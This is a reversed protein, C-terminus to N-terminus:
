TLPRPGGPHPRQRSLASPKTPTVRRMAAEHARRRKTSSRARPAMRVVAPDVIAYSPAGLTPRRPRRPSRGLAAHSASAVSSVSSHSRARAVCASCSACGSTTVPSPPAADPTPFRVSVVSASVTSSTASAASAASGPASGAEDPLSDWIEDYLSKLEAASVPEYQARVAQVDDKEPVPPPNDPIQESEVLSDEDLSYASEPSACRELPDPRTEPPPSPYAERM